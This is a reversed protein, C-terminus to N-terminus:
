SAEGERNGSERHAEMQKRQEALRRRVQEVTLARSPDAKLEDYAAVVETRLWTELAEDRDPM